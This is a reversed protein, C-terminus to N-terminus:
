FRSLTETSACSCTVHAVLVVVIAASSFQVAVMALCLEDRRYGATPLSEHDHSSKREHFFCFSFRAHFEVISSSFNQEERDITSNWPSLAGSWPCIDSDALRIRTCPGPTRRYRAFM